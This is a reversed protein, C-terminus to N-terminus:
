YVFFLFCCHDAGEQLVVLNNAAGSGGLGVGVGGDELVFDEGVVVDDGFGAEPSEHVVLVLDLGGLAVDEGAGDNAVLLDSGAVVGDREDVIGLLATVSGHNLLETVDGLGAGDRLGVVVHGSTVASAESLDFNHTDLADRVGFAAAGPNLGEVGGLDLERLEGAADLVDGLGVTDDETSLVGRATQLFVFIEEKKYGRM